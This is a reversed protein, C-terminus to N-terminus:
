HQSDALRMRSEVRDAIALLYPARVPYAKAQVSQPRHRRVVEDIRSRVDVRQGLPGTTQDAYTLADALPGELHPYVALAHRMGNFEAVIAAGSHHAVLAAIRMPWGARELYAAGDISHFGTEVLSAAYGVDHLWAAEVLTHRDEPAVTAAIEEARQAVGITHRWRTEDAALLEKATYRAMEVRLGTTMVTM